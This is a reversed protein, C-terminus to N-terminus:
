QEFLRELALKSNELRMSHALFNQEAFPRLWDRFSALVSPAMNRSCALFLCGHLKSTIVLGRRFVGRALEIDSGIDDVEIRFTEGSSLNLVATANEFEIVRLTGLRRFSMKRGSRRSVLAAIWNLVPIKSLVAIM